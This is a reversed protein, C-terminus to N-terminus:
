STRFLEASKCAVAAVYKEGGKRQKEKALTEGEGGAAAVAAGFPREFHLPRSRRQGHTPGEGGQGWWGHKHAKNACAQREIKTVAEFNSTDYECSVALSGHM